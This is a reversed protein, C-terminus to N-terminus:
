DGAKIGLQEMKRYLHSREIGLIEATKSVNGGCEALASQIYSREFAQRAERLTTPTSSEVAIPENFKLVNQIMRGSIKRPEALVALRRMCNALGRVNSEWLQNKLVIQADPLLEKAAIMEEQCVQKLFHIALASIDDSRERLPPLQIPVVNIRYFLDKRFQGNTVKEELPKNTASIIRVDVAEYREAGVRLIKGDEIATLVKAQALPSLDGIEDLFLTGSHALQFLGKKSSRADTFAGKEHGFLESEVLTDPIAACNVKIFPANARKSNKHLAQAVLEKGTGSEGTILIPTRTPALADVLAFVRRMAPSEGIMGYRNWAEQLNLDRKRKLTLAELTNRVTLLLRQADLPKEIYDYAGHKIADVAPKIEKGGSIMIVTLDPQLALAKQLVDVGNIDPLLIDLLALDFQQSELLKLASEGDGALTVNFGAFQLVDGMLTSFTHDDDVLLINANNM